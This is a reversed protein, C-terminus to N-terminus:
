YPDVGSNNRISLEREIRINELLVLDNYKDVVAKLARESPKKIIAASGLGLSGLVLPPLNVSPQSFQNVVLWPSALTGIRAFVQQVGRRNKYKRFAENLEADQKAEIIPKLYKAKSIVKDDFMVKHKGIYRIEKVLQANTTTIFNFLLFITVITKM